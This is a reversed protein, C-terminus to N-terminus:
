MEVFGALNRRGGPGHSRQSFGFQQVRGCSPDVQRLRSAFFDLMQWFNSRELSELFPQRSTNCESL